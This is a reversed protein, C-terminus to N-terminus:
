LKKQLWFQYMATFIKPNKQEYEEWYELNRARPDDPYIAAFDQRIKKDPLQFGLFELGLAEIEHKLRLPTYVHEQVHFLLDRMSSVGYFDWWSMCKRAPHETPLTKIYERCARIGELDGTFGQEAIIERAAFVSPRAYQSYLAIMMFGGPRLIRELVRWGSLPDRMHHLVGGCYIVDYTQQMEELKLIDAIGYSLHGLGLERSKRIAYALSTASIDVSTFNVGPLGMSTEVTQRGTGCGAILGDLPKKMVPALDDDTLFPYLHKLTAAVNGTKQQGIHSWRPYPNAEYQEKVLLTVADDLPTLIPITKKIDEEELPERIQQRLLLYLATDEQFIQALTAANKLTHLPRYCSLIALQEATIAGPGQAALLLLTTVLRTEEATEPYMYENLFQQVGLGAIFVKLERLLNKMAPLADAQTAARLFEARLAILISEITVSEIMVRNLMGLFVPHNLAAWNLAPNQVHQQLNVIRTGQAHPLLATTVAQMLFLGQSLRTLQTPAINPLSFCTTLEDVLEASFEVETSWLEFNRAFAQWLDPNKPQLKKAIRLASLAERYRELATRTRALALWGDFDNPSLIAAIQLHDVAHQYQAIASYTLGLHHHLSASRPEQTLASKLTDIAELPKGQAKLTEAISIPNTQPIPQAQAM